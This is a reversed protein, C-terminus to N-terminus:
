PFAYPYRRGFSGINLMQSFILFLEQLFVILFRPIDHLLRQMGVNTTYIQLLDSLNLSSELQFNERKTLNVKRAFIQTKHDGAPFPNVEQSEKITDLQTQRKGM